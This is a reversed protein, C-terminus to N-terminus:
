HYLSHVGCIVIFCVEEGVQPGRTNLPIDLPWPNMQRREGGLFPGRSLLLGADPSLATATNIVYYDSSFETPLSLFSSGNTGGHM